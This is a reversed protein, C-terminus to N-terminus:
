ILRGKIIEKITDELYKIEARVIEKGKETRRRIGEIMQEKNMAELSEILFPEEIELRKITLQCQLKEDLNQPYFIRGDKIDALYLYKKTSPDYSLPKKRETESLRIPQM